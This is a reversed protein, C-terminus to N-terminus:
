TGWGQRAGHPTGQLMWGREGRVNQCQVQLFVVQAGAAGGWQCDFCVTWNRYAASWELYFKCALCRQFPDPCALCDAYSPLVGSPFSKRGEAPNIANLGCRAEGTVADWQVDGDPWCQMLFNPRPRGVQGCAYGWRLCHGWSMMIMGPKAALCEKSSSIAWM